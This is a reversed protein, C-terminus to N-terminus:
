NEGGDEQCPQGVFNAPELRCPAESSVMKSWRGSYKKWLFETGMYIRCSCGRPFMPGELSAPTTDARAELPDDLGPEWRADMEAVIGCGTSPYLRNM